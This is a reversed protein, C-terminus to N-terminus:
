NVVKSQPNLIADLYRGQFMSIGLAQGYQIASIDDCHCLIIRNSGCRNIAKLLLVNEPSDINEKVDNNWQIKLLDFGLGQRSIQIFSLDTLGDVSVRYGNKHLYNRADIFAQMDHFVDAIHVEVIINVPQAKKIIADFRTFTDSLVTKINLNLSIPTNKPLVTPRLSLLSLMHKDLLETFCHFLPKYGKVDVDQMIVKKLHDINVYVEDFVPMVKNEILNCICISQNRLVNTLDIGKMANEINALLLPTLRPKKSFREGDNVKRKSLMFFKQWELSLTYPTSLEMVGPMDVLKKASGLGFVFMLMREICENAVILDSDKLVLLFDNDGCVFLYGEPCSFHNSLTSTNIPTRVHKYRDLQSFHFHLGYCSQQSHKTSVVVRLFEKENTIIALM